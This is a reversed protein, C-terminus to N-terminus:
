ATPGAEPQATKGLLQTTPLVNVRMNATASAIDGLRLVALIAMVTLVVFLSGFVLRVKYKITLSSIVRGM